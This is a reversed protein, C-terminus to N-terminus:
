KAMDNNPDVTGVFVPKYQCMGANVFLLTPDDLPITSASHWYAHQRKSVFYEIFSQRISAADQPVSGGSM